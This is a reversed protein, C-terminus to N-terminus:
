LWLGAPLAGALLSWTIPTSGNAKFTVSYPAGLTAEPLPSSPGTIVPVSGPLVVTLTFSETDVGAANTASVTFAATGAAIPTGSLVGTAPDLALGLPLSGGARAWEIPVAGTATFALTYPTGVVADPLTAAPGTITPAAAGVGAVQLECPRTASGCANTVRITFSGTGAATPTGSLEGSSGDLALGPPLSGAAVDWALPAVGTATFTVSYAA